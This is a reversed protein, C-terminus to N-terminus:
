LYPMCPQIRNNSVVCPVFKYKEILNCSTAEKMPDEQTKKKNKM